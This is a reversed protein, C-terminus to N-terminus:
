QADCEKITLQMGPQLHAALGKETELVHKAGPFIKGVRWPYVTETGVVTMSSDLYIVDIPFRMFCCHIASCDKLFLGESPELKKRLMLGRFRTLFSDAMAAKAYFLVDDQRIEFYKM